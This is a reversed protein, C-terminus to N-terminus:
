AALVALRCRKLSIRELRDNGLMAPISSDKRDSEPVLLLGMGTSSSYSHGAYHFIDVHPLVRLVAEVTANGGTLLTPELFRAAVDAAEMEAQPLPPLWESWERGASPTAVALAASKRSVLVNSTQGRSGSALWITHHESLYNGDDAVLAGVAIGAIPDPL